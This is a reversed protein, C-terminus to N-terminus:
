PATSGTPVTTFQGMGIDGQPAILVPNKFISSGSPDLTVTAANQSTTDSLILRHSSDLEMMSIQPDANDKRAESWIWNLSGRTVGFRLVSTTGTTQTDAYSMGFGNVSNNGSTFWTGMTLYNGEIDLDGAIDTATGSTIPNPNGGIGAGQNSVATVTGPSSGSFSFAGAGPNSTRPTYAGTYKDGNADTLIVAGSSTITAELGLGASDTYVDEGTPNSGSISSAVPNFTLDVGNWSIQFPGESPNVPPPESSIVLGSPLGTFLAGNWTGSVSPFPGYYGTVRASFGGTTWTWNILVQGAYQGNTSAPGVNYTVGGSQNQGSGSLTLTSADITAYTGNVYLPNAYDNSAPGYLNSQPWNITGNTGAANVAYDGGGPQYIYVPSSFQGTNDQIVFTSNLPVGLYKVGYAGNNLRFTYVTTNAASIVTGNGLQISQANGGTTFYMDLAGPAVLLNGNTDQAAFNLMKPDGGFDFRHAMPGSPFYIGTTTDSSGSVNVSHDANIVVSAGTLANAYCDAGTQDTDCFYL